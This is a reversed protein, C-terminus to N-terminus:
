MKYSVATLPFMKWETCTSWQVMGLFVELKISTQCCSACSTNVSMLCICFLCYHYKCYGTNYNM